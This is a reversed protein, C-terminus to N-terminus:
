GQDDELSKSVPKRLMVAYKREFGGDWDKARVVVTEVVEFGLSQYLPLGEPSAELHVTLSLAAAQRLGWQVLETGVGQRRHDPHVCLLALVSVRDSSPIPVTVLDSLSVRM